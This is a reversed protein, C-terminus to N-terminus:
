ELASADQTQQVGTINKPPILDTTTGKQYYHLLGTSFDFFEDAEALAATLILATSEAATLGSVGTEIIQAGASNATRMSVTNLNMVSLVNSNGGVTSVAYAGNEFTITYPPVIQVIRQYIIGDLTFTTVHVHTWPYITSAESAELNRLAIHLDNIDLEYIDFPVSQVLTMDAKEITIIDTAHDISITM